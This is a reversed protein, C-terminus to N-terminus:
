ENHLTPSITHLLMVSSEIRKQLVRKVRKLDGSDMIFIAGRLARFHAAKFDHRTPVKVRDMAHFGDGLVRSFVQKSLENEDNASVSKTLSDADKILKDITDELGELYATQDLTQQPSNSDGAPEQEESLIM